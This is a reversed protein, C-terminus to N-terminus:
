RTTRALAAFQAATVQEPGNQTAVWGGLTPANREFAWVGERARAGTLSISGDRVLDAAPSKAQILAALVLDPAPMKGSVLSANEIFIWVENMDAKSVPKAVPRPTVVPVPAPRPTGQPVGQPAPVPQPQSNLPLAGNLDSKPSADTPLQNDRKFRPDNLWNPKEASKAKQNEEPKLKAAVPETQTASATDDSKGTFKAVKKACGVLPLVLILCLLPRM